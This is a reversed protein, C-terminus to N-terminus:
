CGALAFQVRGVVPRAFGKAAVPGFRVADKLAPDPPLAQEIELVRSEATDVRERAEARVAKVREDASARAKEAVAAADRQARRADDAEQRLRETEARVTHPHRWILYAAYGFGLVMGVVGPPLQELMPWLGAQVPVEILATTAALVVWGGAKGVRRLEGM